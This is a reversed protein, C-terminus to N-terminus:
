FDPVNDRLWQESNTPVRPVAAAIAMVNGNKDFDASIRSDHYLALGNQLLDKRLDSFDSGPFIQDLKNFTPDQSFKNIGPPLLKTAAATLEERTIKNKKAM